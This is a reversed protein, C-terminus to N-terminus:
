AAEERLVRRPQRKAQALYFAVRERADNGAQEDDLAWQEVDALFLDEVLDDTLALKCKRCLPTVHLSLGGDPEWVELTVEAYEATPRLTHVFDRLVTTTNPVRTVRVPFRADPALAQIPAGCLKCRIETVMGAYEGTGYVVYQRRVRVGPLKDRLVKPMRRAEKM